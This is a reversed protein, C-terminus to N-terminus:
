GGRVESGDITIRKAAANSSVVEAVVFALHATQHREAVRQLGVARKSLELVLLGRRVSAKNPM